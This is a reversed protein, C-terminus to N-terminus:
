DLRSLQEVWILECAGDGTDERTRSSLWRFGDDGKVEVLQGRLAIRQGPRVAALADAVAANAPILHMNASHTEIERRPIPFEEVRWRYWRNGQSIAIRALVQPDAMPGWGLALDTPSVQAGRDFRYDERGLVRAELQFPELPTITHGALRYGAAGPQGHDPLPPPPQLMAWGLWLVSLAALAYLLRRANMAHM